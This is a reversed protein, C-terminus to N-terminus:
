PTLTVPSAVISFTEGDDLGLEVTFQVTTPETLSIDFAISFRLPAQEDILSAVPLWEDVSLAISTDNFVGGQADGPSVFRDVNVSVAEPGLEPLADVSVVLQSVRQTSEIQDACSLAQARPILLDLWGPRATKRQATYQSNATVTLVYREIAVGAQPDDVPEAFLLANVATADTTSADVSFHQASALGLITVNSPSPCNGDEESSCSLALALVTLCAGRAAIRQLGTMQDVVFM